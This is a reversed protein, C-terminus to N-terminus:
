LWNKDMKGDVVPVIADALAFAEMLDHTEYIM